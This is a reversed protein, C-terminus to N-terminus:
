YLVQLTDLTRLRSESTSSRRLNTLWGNISVFKPGNSTELAVVIERNQM